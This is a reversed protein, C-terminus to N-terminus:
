GWYLIKEDPINNLEDFYDRVYNYLNASKRVYRLDNLYEESFKKFTNADIILDDTIGVACLLEYAEKQPNECGEYIYYDSWQKLIFPYLINFSSKIDEYSAYGYLKHDDGFIQSNDKLRISMRMGM